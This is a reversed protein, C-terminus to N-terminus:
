FEFSVALGTAEGVMPTVAVRDPEKDGADKVFFYVGAAALAVGAGGVIYGVTATRRADPNRMGDEVDSEDIAVLTVGGGIAGLGAVLALWKVTRYPHPGGAANAGDEGNGLPLDDLLRKATEDGALFKALARLKDPGPEAPEIAVTGTRIPKSSDISYLTGVVARRGGVDQIGLVAVSRSGLARGVRIAYAGQNGNREDESGFILAAPRSRLAADLGWTVSLRTEQKAEVTVDHVRGHRTGQQVFVRYRGPYLDDLTVDGVGVYRENVFVVTDAGDVTVKLSGLGQGSLDKKVKDYFERPEPGYESHSIEKDPFSRLLETMARTAETSKGARKYALSLGVLGRLQVDRKDSSVALTAPAKELADLGRELENIALSFNGEVFQAYGSDIFKEAEALEADSLPEGSRSVSAEIQAGATSPAGFGAASLEAIVPELLADADAPRQGVHSELVTEEASAAASLLCSSAVLMVVLRLRSM